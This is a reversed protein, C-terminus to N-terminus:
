TMQIIGANAIRAVLPCQTVGVGEIPLINAGARLAVFPSVTRFVHVFAGHTLERVREEEQTTQRARCASLSFCM